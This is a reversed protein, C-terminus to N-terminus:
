RRLAEIIRSMENAGVHFKVDCQFGLGNFVMKQIQHPLAQTVFGAPSQSLAFVDGIPQRVETELGETGLLADVPSNPKFVEPRGTRRYPPITDDGEYGKVELDVWATFEVTRLKVATM